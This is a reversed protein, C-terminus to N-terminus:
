KKPKGKPKKPPIVDGSTDHTKTGDDDDEDDEDSDGPERENTETDGVGTKDTADKVAARESPKVLPPLGPEKKGTIEELTPVRVPPVPLPTPSWDAPQKIFMQLVIVLLEGLKSWYGPALNTDSAAGQRCVHESHDTCERLDHVFGETANYLEAPTVPEADTKGDGTAKATARLEALTSCTVSTILKGVACAATKYDGAKVATLITSFLVFLNM